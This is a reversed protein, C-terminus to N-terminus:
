YSYDCEVGFGDKHARGCYYRQMATLDKFDRPSGPYLKHLSLDAADVINLSFDHLATEVLYPIAPRYKCKGFLEVSTEYQLSGQNRYKGTSLNKLAQPYCKKAMYNVPFYDDEGDDINEVIIRRMFATVEASDVHYAVKEIGNRVRFRSEKWYLDLLEHVADRKLLEDAIDWDSGECVKWDDFCSLLKETPFKRLNTKAPKDQATVHSTILVLLLLFCWRGAVLVFAPAVERIGSQGVRM